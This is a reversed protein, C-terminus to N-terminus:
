IKGQKKDSDAGVVTVDVGNKLKDGGEVVVMDGPNIGGVVEFHDRTELGLEVKRPEAKGDIIVFVIKEGNQTQILAATPIVVANESSKTVIVLRCFMGPIYVNNNDPTAEVTLTRMKRDLEPYVRSVKATLHEGPYADLQFRIPMGLKLTTAQSEPVSFRIVMSTPDYLELLPTRPAVFNGDTVLVKSIVGAWPATVNFDELSERVKAAQARAKELNSRSIGLQDGPVAGNQVLQEIRRAEDQEKKLDASASALLAEASKVRGIKFLVEGSKVHDGERVKCNLVPGEAPSALKALRSAEISGTVDFSQAITTREAKVVVVAPKSKTKQDGSQGRAHVSVILVTAIAMFAINISYSAKM